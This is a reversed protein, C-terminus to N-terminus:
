TSASARGIASKGYDGARCPQIVTIYIHRRAPQKTESTLLWQNPYKQNKKDSRAYLYYPFVLLIDAPRAGKIADLLCFLEVLRENVPPVQSHIVVVFHDRVNEVQIQLNENSFRVVKSRALKQCSEPWLKKPLRPKLARCVAGALVDSGRTSFVKVPYSM